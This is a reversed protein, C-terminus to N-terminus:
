KTFETQATTGISGPALTQMSATQVFPKLIEPALNYPSWKISFDSFAKAAKWATNIVWSGTAPPATAAAPPAVEAPAVEVPPPPSVIATPAAPPPTPTSAVSAEAQPVAPPPVAEAQVQIEEQAPVAPPATFLAAAPMEVSPSAAAAPIESSIPPASQTIPAAQVTQAGQVMQPPTVTANATANQLLVPLESTAQSPPALSFDLVMVQKAAWNVGLPVAVNVIPAVFWEARGLKSKLMLTTAATAAYSGVNIAVDTYTPSLYYIIALQGVLQGAVQVYPSSVWCVKLASQVSKPVGALDAILSIRDFSILRAAAYQLANEVRTGTIVTLQVETASLQAADAGKVNFVIRTQVKAQGKDEKAQVEKRLKEELTRDFENRIQTVDAVSQEIAKKEQTTAYSTLGNAFESLRLLKAIEYFLANTENRDFTTQRKWPQLRDSLKERESVLLATTKSIIATTLQQIKETAVTEDKGARAAIQLDQYAWAFQEFTTSHALRRGIEDLHDYSKASHLKQELLVLEEEGSRIRAEYENVLHGIMTHLDQETDSQKESVIETIEKIKNARRERFSHLVRQKTAYLWQLQDRDLQLSPDYPKLRNTNKEWLTDIAKSIKRQLPAFKSTDIASRMTALFSELEQKTFDTKGVPLSILRREDTTFEIHAQQGSPSVM